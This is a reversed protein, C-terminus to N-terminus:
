RLYISGGSVVVDGTELGSNVILQREPASTVIVEKKIFSNPGTEVFLYSKSNDQLVAEAPILITGSIRHYFRVTVFMGCKLNHDSNQCKIFVEVSRTEPNMINGIYEVLGSVPTDPKIESYIEVRDDKSLSALDKEKVNAVIWVNEIDAITIVPEADSKLYQGVTIESRVVEGALPSRIILPHSLDAKEPDISLIKLTAEAKKYEKDALNYVLQSEDLEKRSTVGSDYLEKKRLHNKDALDRENRAQLYIRVYELYDSSNVEFLPTGVSVKQGLNVFSRVIRGELPSTIEARRGSLPRVAGTTIYQANYDARRITTFKLKARVPSQQPVFVTDGMYYFSLSESNRNGKRHRKRHQGTEKFNGKEAVSNVNASEQCSTLVALIIIIVIKNMILILQYFIIM